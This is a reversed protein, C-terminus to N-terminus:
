KGNAEASVELMPRINLGFLLQETQSMDGIFRRVPPPLIKILTPAAILQEVAAIEPRLAIDVVELEYRGSLYVECIKRINAAARISHSRLGVVYLRMHYHVPDPETVVVPILKDDVCWTTEETM